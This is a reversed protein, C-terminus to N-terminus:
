SCVLMIQIVEVGLFFHLDGMDKLHFRNSLHQIVNNIFTSNNGTIVLDDVYVLLYCKHSDTSYIVNTLSPDAKSQLFYLQTIAAKFASVLSQSSTEPWLYSEKLSM